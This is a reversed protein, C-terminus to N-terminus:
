AGPARPRPRGPADPDRQRLYAPQQPSGAVRERPLRAPLPRAAKAAALAALVVLLIAAVAFLTPPAGPPAAFLASVLHLVRDPYARLAMRLTPQGAWPG